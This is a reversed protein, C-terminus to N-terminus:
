LVLNQQQTSVKETGRLGFCRLIVGRSFHSFTPQCDMPQIAESIM